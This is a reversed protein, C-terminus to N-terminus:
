MSEDSAVCVNTRQQEVFEFFIFIFYKWIQVSYTSDVTSENNRARLYWNFIHFRCHCQNSSVLSSARLVVYQMLLPALVVGSLFVCSLNIRILFNNNHSRSQAYNSWRKGDNTQKGFASSILNLLNRNTVKDLVFLYSLYRSNLKQSALGFLIIGPLIICDDNWQIWILRRQETEIPWCEDSISLKHYNINKIACGM